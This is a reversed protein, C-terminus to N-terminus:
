DYYNRGGAARLIVNVAAIRLNISMLAQARVNNDEDEKSMTFLTELPTLNNLAVAARVLKNKDRSLLSLDKEKSSTTVNPDYCEIVHSDIM